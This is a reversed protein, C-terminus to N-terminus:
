YVTNLTQMDSLLIKSQPLYKLGENLINKAQSYNKANFYTAFQNHFYTAVNHEINRQQTIARTDNDMDVIALSATSLAQKWEKNELLRKLETSYVNLLLDNHVKKTILNQSYYTKIETISNNYSNTYVFSILTAQMLLQAMEIRTEQTILTNSSHNNSLQQAEPLNQRITKEQGNGILTVMANYYLLSVLKEFHQTNGYISYAQTLFQIGEEFRNTISMYSTYNGFETLLLQYSNNNQVLTYIDAALFVTQNFKRLKQLEVINNQIILALMDRKGIVSRNSYNSPPTYVFGTQGFSNAFEKKEGPNFGYITTTEVDITKGNSTITCFSHDHTKVGGVQLSYRMSLAYFLVSSSVCNYIGRDFLMNLNTVTEQYSKFQTNHLFTLIYEAIEFNGTINNSLIDRQLNQALSTYKQLYSPINDLSVGSVYFAYYMFESDNMNEGLSAAKLLEKDPSLQSQATLTISSSFLIFLFIIIKKVIHNLYVSIKANQCSM